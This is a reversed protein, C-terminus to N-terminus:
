PLSSSRWSEVSSRAPKRELVWAEFLEQPTQGSDLGVFKPFRERYKDPSYDGETIRIIRTLAQWLDDFLWSCMRRYVSGLV